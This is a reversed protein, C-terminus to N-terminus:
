RRAPVLVELWLEGISVTLEPSDLVDLLEDDLRLRAGPPPCVTVQQWRRAPPPPLRAPRGDLRDQAYERLAAGGAPDIVVVDLVGDGSDASPALPIAPGSEGVNMLEVGLMRGSLAGQPSTLEWPAPDLRAAAERLMRLGIELKEDRGPDEAQADALAIVEAMLGGGFSEVFRRRHVGWSVLGVDFRRRAAASWGHVSQELDDPPEIGLWRAINNASGTPIVAAPTGREPLQKFVERVTGDGGAVAVLDAPEALAPEADEASARRVEHGASRIAAVLDHGSFREDGAGDNHILTVRM